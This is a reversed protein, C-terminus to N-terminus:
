GAEASLPHAALRKIARRTEAGLVQSVLLGLGLAGWGTDMDEPRFEGTFNSEGQSLTLVLPKATPGVAARWHATLPGGVLPMDPETGDILHRLAATGSRAARELQPDASLDASYTVRVSSAPETATM